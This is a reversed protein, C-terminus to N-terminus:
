LKEVADKIKGSEVLELFEEGLPESLEVAQRWNKIRTAPDDIFTVFDEREPVKGGPLKEVFLATPFVMLVNDLSGEPPRRSPFRKDLWCPIIREQHHFFLTVGDEPAYSQSLHYDTLGGDRYVGKPAGYVDRVGAVVLPVSASAMVAHKFNIEDLPVYRGRFDRNFCFYPPKAGTYFVVREFFYNLFSRHLANLLFCLGLGFHQVRRVESAALHRARAAIIALRYKKSALAFPLADDELYSNIVDGLSALIAAPSDDRKVTLEIYAERLARYNKEAEPQLWAAFRCAGASSGVLLMPASRGLVGKTLLTLDFGGAILWRPGVAPAVYASVADLNFGGDQIMAYIRKGAKIRINYM